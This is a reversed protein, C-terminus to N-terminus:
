GRIQIVYCFIILQSVLFSFESDGGRSHYIANVVSKSDTEIIVHTIGRQEM